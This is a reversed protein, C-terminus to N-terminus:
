VCAGRRQTYRLPKPRIAEGNKTGETAGIVWGTQPWHDEIVRQTVADLM